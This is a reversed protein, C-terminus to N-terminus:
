AYEHKEQSLLEAKRKRKTYLAINKSINKDAYNCM